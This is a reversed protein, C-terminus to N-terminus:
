TPCHVAIHHQTFFTAKPLKHLKLCFSFIAVPIEHNFSSNSASSSKWQPILASIEWIVISNGNKRLSIITLSSSLTFAYIMFTQQLDRVGNEPLQWLPTQAVDEDVFRECFSKIAELGFNWKRSWLRWCFMLWLSPWFFELRKRAECGRLINKKKTKCFKLASNRNSNHQQQFYKVEVVKIMRGFSTGQQFKLRFSQRIFDNVTSLPLHVQLANCLPSFRFCHKPSHCISKKCDSRYLRTTHWRREGQPSVFRKRTRQLHLSATRITLSLSSSLTGKIVIWNFEHNQSQVDSRPLRFCRWLDWKRECSSLYSYNLRLLLAPWSSGLVM